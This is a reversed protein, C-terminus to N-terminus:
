GFVFKLQFKFINIALKRTLKAIGPPMTTNNTTTKRRNGVASVIKPAGQRYQETLRCNITSNPQNISMIRSLKHLMKENPRSPSTVQKHCSSYSVSVFTKTDIKSTKPHSVSKLLMKSRQSFGLYLDSILINWFPWDKVWFFFRRPYTSPILNFNKFLEDEASSINM